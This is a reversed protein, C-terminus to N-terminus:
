RTENQRSTCDKGESVVADQTAATKVPLIGTSKKNEESKETQQQPAALIPTSSVSPEEKQPKVPPTEPVKVSDTTQIKDLPKAPDPRKLHPIPPGQTLDNSPIKSPSATPEANFESKELVPSEFSPRAQKTYPGVGVDYDLSKTKNGLSLKPKPPKGSSNSKPGQPGQSVDKAEDAENTSLTQTKM